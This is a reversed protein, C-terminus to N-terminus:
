LFTSQSPQPPERLTKIAELVASQTKVNLNRSSELYSAVEEKADSIVDDKNTYAERQFLSIPSGMGACSSIWLSLGYLWYGKRTEILHVEACISKHSVLSETIMNGRAVGHPNSDVDWYEQLEKLRQPLSERHDGYKVRLHNIFQEPNMDAEDVDESQAEMDEFFAFLDATHAKTQEIVECTGQGHMEGESLAQSFLTPQFDEDRLVNHGHIRALENFQSITFARWDPYLNGTAFGYFTGARYETAYWKLSTWPLHYMSIVIPNESKNNSDNHKEFFPELHPPVLYLEQDARNLFSLDGSPLDFPM